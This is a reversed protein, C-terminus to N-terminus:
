PDSKVRPVLESLLLVRNVLTRAFRTLCYFSTTAPLCALLRCGDTTEPATSQGGVVRPKHTSVEGARLAQFLLTFQSKRLSCECWPCRPTDVASFLCIRSMRPTCGSSSSSNENMQHQPRFGPSRAHSFVEVMLCVGLSAHGQPVRLQHPALMFSLTSEMCTLISSLKGSGMSVGM